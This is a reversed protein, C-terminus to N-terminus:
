KKSTKKKDTKKVPKTVGEAPKTVVKEPEKVPEKAPEKVPEPKPEPKMEPKPEELIVCCQNIRHWEEETILGIWGVRKRTLRGAGPLRVPVSETLKIKVM